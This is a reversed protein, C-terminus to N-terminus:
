LDFKDIVELVDIQQIPQDVDGINSTSGFPAVGIDIAWYMGIDRICAAVAAHVASKEGSPPV